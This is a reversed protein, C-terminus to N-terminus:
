CIQIGANPVTALRDAADCSTVAGPLSPGDEPFVVSRREAQQTWWGEHERDETRLWIGDERGDTKSCSSGEEGLCARGSPMETDKLIKTKENKREGNIKVKEREM